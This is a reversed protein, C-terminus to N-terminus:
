ETIEEVIGAEILGNAQGRDAYTVMTIVSDIDTATFLFRYERVRDGETALQTVFGTLGKLMVRENSM